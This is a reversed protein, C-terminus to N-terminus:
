KIGDMKKYVDGRAGALVTTIVIIRGNILTYVVRYNGIRIRYYAGRKGRIKKNDVSEPHDDLLLKRIAEKYQSRIDEHVAFFKEAAKTYRIEYENIGRDM